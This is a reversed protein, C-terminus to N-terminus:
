PQTQEVIDMAVNSALGENDVTQATATGSEGPQLVVTVVFTGSGSTIATVAQLSPIGGFTVTLGGPYEDIVVGTFTWVRGLGECAHFDEIVPPQNQSEGPLGTRAQQGILPGNLLTGSGSNGGTSVTPASNFGGGEMVIPGPTIGGALSPETAIVSAYEPSHSVEAVGTAPIPASCLQDDAPELALDQPEIVLPDYLASPGSRSELVEVCLRARRATAPAARRRSRALLGLM